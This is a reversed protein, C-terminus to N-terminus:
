LLIAKCYQKRTPLEDHYFFGHPSAPLSLSLSLSHYIQPIHSLYCLCFLFSSGLMWWVIFFVSICIIIFVLYHLGLLMWWVSLCFMFVHLYLCKFVLNWWRYRVEAVMSSKTKKMPAAEVVEEAEGVASYLM